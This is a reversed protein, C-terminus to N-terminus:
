GTRCFCFKRLHPHSKAVCRPQDGYLNTRSIDFHQFSHNSHRRDFLLKATVEYEANNPQAVFNVRYTYELTSVSDMNVHCSDCEENQETNVFQVVNQNPKHRAAQVTNKSTLTHCKGETEPHENNMFNIRALTRTVIEKVTTDGVPVTQFDLCPCWHVGVGAEECTRNLSRIDSFLSKGFKTASKDDPFTLLHHLTAHIDFHSTMVRTNHRMNKMLSPYTSHFWPPVTVSVFPLREEMKGQLTSRFGGIRLGHDALLIVVTDNSHGERDLYEFFDLLDDDALELSNMSNHFFDSFISVALKNHNKYAAFYRKLYDFSIKNSCAPSQLRLVNELALWYSRLYKMAPPDRFGLLRFNFAATEPDDESYLTKYSASLFDKFIFPWKDVPKASKKGRKAQPLQYEPTGTLMACLQATTGDGVISHGKFIFSNPNKELRAYTKLMTRRFMSNSISDLMLLAVNVGHKAKTNKYKSDSTAPTPVYAHYEESYTNNILLELRVFEERLQYNVDAKQARPSSVCGFRDVPALSELYKPCTNSERRCCFGGAGCKEECSGGGCGDSCDVVYEDGTAKNDKMYMCSHYDRSAEKVLNSPCNEYGKRCCYGGDGCYKCLGEEKCYHNCGQIILPRDDGARPSLLSVRSSLEIKFDDVRRVYYVGASQVNNLRLQLVGDATVYAYKTMQCPSRKEMNAERLFPLVAPHNPNLVPVKCKQTKDLIPFTDADPHKDLSWSVQDLKHRDNPKVIFDHLFLCITIVIAICTIRKVGRILRVM